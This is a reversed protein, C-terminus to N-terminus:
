STPLSGDGKMFAILKGYKTLANQQTVEAGHFERLYEDAADKPGSIQSPQATYDFTNLSSGSTAQGAYQTAASQLQGFQQAQAQNQQAIGGAVDAEGARALLAQQGPQLTAAAGPPGSEMIGYASGLDAQPNDMLGSIPGPQANGQKAQAEAAARQGQTYLQDYWARFRAYDNPGLDHGLLAQAEERLGNDVTVNNAHEIGVMTRAGIDSTAKGFNASSTLYQGFAAGSQVTTTVVDKLATITNKDMFGTMADGITTSSGYAGAYWLLQQLFQVTSPDSLHAMVTMLDDATRIPQHLQQSVRLLQGQITAPLGTLDINQQAIKGLSFLDSGAGSTLTVGGVTTTSTANSGAGGAVTSQDAAVTGQGDASYGSASGARASGFGDASYSSASTSGGSGNASM